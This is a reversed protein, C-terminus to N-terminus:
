EYREVATYVVYRQDMLPNTNQSKILGLKKMYKTLYNITNKPLGTNQILQKTTLGNLSEKLQEMVLLQKQNKIQKM